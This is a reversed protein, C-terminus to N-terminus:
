GGGGVLTSRLPFPLPNMETVEAKGIHKKLMEGEEKRMRCAILEVQYEQGEM